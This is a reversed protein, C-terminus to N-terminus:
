PSNATPQQSNTEDGWLTSLASLKHPLPPHADKGERVGDGLWGLISLWCISSGSRAASIDPNHACHQIALWASARAVSSIAPASKARDSAPRRGAFAPPVTAAVSERPAPEQPRQIATGRSQPTATSARKRMALSKAIRGPFAAPRVAPWAAMRANAGRARASPGAAASKRRVTRRRASRAPLWASQTRRTRAWVPLCGSVQVVSSSGPLEVGRLREGRAFGHTSGPAM